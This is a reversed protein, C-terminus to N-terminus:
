YDVYANFSKFYSDNIPIEIHQWIKKDSIPEKKYKVMCKKRQKVLVQNNYLLWLPIIQYKDGFLGDKYFIEVAGM